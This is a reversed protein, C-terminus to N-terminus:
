FSSLLSTEGVRAIHLDSTSSILYIESLDADALSKAM